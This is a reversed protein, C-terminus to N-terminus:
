GGGLGPKRILPFTLNATAAAATAATASISTDTYVGFIQFQSASVSATSLCGTTDTPYLTTGTAPGVGGLLRILVGQGRAAVFGWQSVQFATQAFGFKFGPTASATTIRAGSIMTAVAGAGIQKIGVMAGQTLAESALVYVWESAQSGEVTMGPTYNCNSGVTDLDIGIKGDTAYFAM